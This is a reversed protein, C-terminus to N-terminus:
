EEHLRFSSRGITSWKEKVEITTNWKKNVETDEIGRPALISQAGNRV